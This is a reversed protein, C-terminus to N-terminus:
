NVSLTSIHMSIELDCKRTSLLLILVVRAYDVSVNYLGLKIISGANMFQYRLFYVCWCISLLFSSYNRMASSSLSLYNKHMKTLLEYQAQMQLETQCGFREELCFNIQDSHHLISIGLFIYALKSKRSEPYPVSVVFVKSTVASPYWQRELPVLAKNWDPDYLTEANYCNHWQCQTHTLGTEFFPQSLRTQGFISQKLISIDNFM